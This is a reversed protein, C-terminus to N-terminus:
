KGYFEKRDITKLKAAGYTATIWLVFCSLTSFVLTKWSIITTYSVFLFFFPQIQLAGLILFFILFCVTLSDACWYVFLFMVGLLLLIFWTDVLSLFVVYFFSFDVTQGMKYYFFSGMDTWNIWYTIFPRSLCFIIIGTLFIWLLSTLFILSSQRFWLTQRKGNKLLYQPTFDHFLLFCLVVFYPLAVAFALIFPNGLLIYSDALSFELLYQQSKKIIFFIEIALGSATYLAALLIIIFFRKFKEKYLTLSYKGRERM